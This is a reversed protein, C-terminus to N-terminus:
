IAAFRSTLLLQRSQFRANGRRLPGPAIGAQLRASALASNAQKFLLVNGTILWKTRWRGFRLVALDPKLSTADPPRPAASREQAGSDGPRSVRGERRSRM